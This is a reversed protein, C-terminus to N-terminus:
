GPQWTPDSEIHGPDVPPVISEVVTLEVRDSPVAKRSAAVLSIDPFLALLRQAALPELRFETVPIRQDNGDAVATWDGGVENLRERRVAFLGARLGHGYSLRLDLGCIRWDDADIGSLAYLRELNGPVDIALDGVWAPRTEASTAPVEDTRNTTPQTM